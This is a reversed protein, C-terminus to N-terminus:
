HSDHGDGHEEGHADAKGDLIAIYKAPNANFKKVCGKCCLRVLRTGYLIDVPKMDGGLEEGSVPCTKASYNKSQAEILAADVKALAAAPNAKVKKICGKCCVRVLRTGVVVDIPEGMDGKLPEGSVPCTDLPYSPKQQKIVAADIMSFAKSPDAKVKKICGKCCVRVLRGQVVVNIAEGMEGGLKEGSVPCTTLPYSPLESAVVSADDSSASSPMAVTTATTGEACDSCSDQLAVAPASLLAASLAALLAQHLKM